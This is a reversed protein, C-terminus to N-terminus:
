VGHEMALVFPKWIARGLIKWPNMHIMHIVVEYKVWQLKMEKLNRPTVFCLVCGCVRVRKRQQALLPVMSKSQCVDPVCVFM